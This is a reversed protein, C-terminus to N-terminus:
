WTWLLGDTIEVHALHILGVVEWEIEKLGMRINDQWGFTSRRFHEESKVVLICYVNIYEGTCVIHGM